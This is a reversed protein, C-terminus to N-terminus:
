NVEPESPVLQQAWDDANEPMFGGLSRQGFDYAKKRLQYHTEEGLIWATDFARYVEQRIMEKVAKEQKESMGWTEALTLLKGVLNSPTNEFVLLADGCGRFPTKMEDKM